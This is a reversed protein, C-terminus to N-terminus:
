PQCPSLLLDPLWQAIVVLASLAGLMLGVAALLRDRAAPDPMDSSARGGADRWRRAAVSTALLVLVLTVAAIGHMVLEHGARCAWGVVAYKAEQSSLLLIPGALVALWLSVLARPPWDAHLREPDHPPRM